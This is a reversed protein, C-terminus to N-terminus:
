KLTYNKVFTPKKETGFFRYCGDIPLTNGNSLRIYNYIHSPISRSQYATFRFGNPIQLASFIAAAFTAYSKCDFGSNKFHLAASPLFIQQREPLDRKYKFNQRMFNWVNHATVIDNKGKFKKAFQKVQKTARQHQLIIAAQLNESLADNHALKIEGLYAPQHM